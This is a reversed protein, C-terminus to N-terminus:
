WRRHHGHHGWGGSSEGFSFTIGPGGGYYPRPAYGYSRYYPRPAYVYNRYYSRHARHHRHKYKRKHSSFDTSQGEAVGAKAKTTNAVNDAAGGVSSGMLMAASVALVVAIKKMGVSRNVHPSIVIASTQREMGWTLEVSRMFLCEPEDGRESSDQDELM